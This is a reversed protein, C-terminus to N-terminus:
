IEILILTFTSTSGFSMLMKVCKLCTSTSAFFIHCFREIFVFVVTLAMMRQDFGEGM